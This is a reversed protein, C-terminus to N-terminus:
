GSVLKRDPIKTRIGDAEDATWRGERWSVIPGGMVAPTTVARTPKVDEKATTRAPSFATPALWACAELPRRARVNVNPSPMKHSAHLDFIGTVRAHDVGPAASRAEAPITSPPQGAATPANTTTPTSITRVPNSGLRPLSM